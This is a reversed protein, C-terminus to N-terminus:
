STFIVRIGDLRPQANKLAEMVEEKKANLRTLEERSIDPNISLLYNLRSIEQDFKQKASEMAQTTKENSWSKNAKLAKDILPSLLKKFQAGDQPVEAKTLEVFKQTQGTHQPNKIEQGLHNVVIEQNSIPLYRGLELHKAGTAELILSLEVLVGRGYPSEPWKCISAVGEDRELLLALSSEAILHDATVFIYDERALALERDFTLISDKDDPLGPFKDIFSLSEPRVLLSGRDDADEYDVGFHDFIGRMFFELTPDDDADDVGELLAQGEKENFSNIDVLIDISAAREKLFAAAATQSEKILMELNVARQSYQSHQPFFQRFAELLEDVFEELLPDASNWAKEFSGLGLHFWKFLVEEPTNELWPVHIFIERGQGIRDLRGVRQELLDPLRPIDMMILNKTCQFNRGEGGIESSILIQAGDPDSFFAAQKDREVVSLGEYFIAAKIKPLEGQLYEKIEVVTESKSCLILAKDNKLEKSIFASLWRYRANEKAPDQYVRSSSRGTAFDLLQLASLQKTDTKALNNMYSASAQLPISRLNRKPFGKLNERRNRFLVRGTGHRDVLASLLSKVSEESLPKDILSLMDQDSFFINKLEQKDNRDLHQNKIKKALDATKRIEQYKDWFDEYDSYLKPDVLNLLGFQTAIGHQRPTATLLLLGSSVESLSKAILWKPNPEDPDWDLQHAEDVILLDWKAEIAEKCRQPSNLLFDMSVIVRQNQSFASDNQSQEEQICRNEDLISFMEGFRRYFEAVWQNVLSEPTVVLVRDARGLAKLSSFILGAEITKGLGVEDALLVRPFARRSVESAIYLQHPLPTVRAGLMGRTEIKHTNSKISWAEKRLDYSNHHSWQGTILHDIASNKDGELLSTEHEAFVGQSTHYYTLNEKYSVREIVLGTSQKARIKDGAKFELRQIPANKISYCREEQSQSFVVNVVNLALDVKIIHGQGLEPESKSIVKQKESWM